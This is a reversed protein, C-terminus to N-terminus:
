RLIKKIKRYKKIKKRDRWINEVRL